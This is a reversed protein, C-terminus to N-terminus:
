LKTKYVTLGVTGPMKKTAELPERKLSRMQSTNENVSITKRLKASNVSSLMHRLSRTNSVSM